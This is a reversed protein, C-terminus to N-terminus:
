SVRIGGPTYFANNLAFKTSYGQANPISGSFPVLHQMPEYAMPQNSEVGTKINQALSHCFGLLNTTPNFINEGEQM